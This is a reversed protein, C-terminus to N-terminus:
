NSSSESEGLSAGGTKTMWDNLRKVFVGMPLSRLAETTAPDVLPKGNEDKAALMSLGLKLDATGGGQEVADILLGAPVHEACDTANPLAHAKGNLVFSYTGRAGPVVAKVSSTATRPKRPAAM